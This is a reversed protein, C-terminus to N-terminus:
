RGDRQRVVRGSGAPPATIAAGTHKVRIVRSLRGRMRATVVSTVVVLLVALSGLQFLAGEIITVVGIFAIGLLFLLERLEKKLQYSRSSRIRVTALKVGGLGLYSRSASDLFAWPLDPFVGLADRSSPFRGGLDGGHLTERREQIPDSTRFAKVRLHPVETEGAAPVGEIVVEDGSQIGLLELTLEDLLCVEREVTTLDASQVRCTVYNPEGVGRDTWRRRSLRAPALTVSEGIEVGLANRVIQDVEVTSASLTGEAETVRAVAGIGSTRCSGHAARVVILEPDGLAARTTPDVRVNAQGHRELDDPTGTVSWSALTADVGPLARPRLAKYVQSTAEAPAVMEPQSLVWGETAFLSRGRTRLEEEARARAVWTEPTPGFAEVLAPSRALLSSLLEPQPSLTLPTGDFALLGHVAVYAECGGLVEGSPLTVPFRTPSLPTRRYNPETEDLVALQAKTLWCVTMRTEAGPAAVPAAAVYGSRSIHASVGARLGRVTATTMPIVPRVGRRQFKRRMQAPSANSGVALVPYRFDAAAENYRLLVYNLSLAIDHTDADGPLGDGPAEVLWQGLRRGAAPILRLFRDHALLGSEDPLAGPYTLPSTFPDADLQLAALSRDANM